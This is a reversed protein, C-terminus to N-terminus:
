VPMHPAGPSVCTLSWGRPITKMDVHYGKRCLKWNTHGATYLHVGYIQVSKIDKLVHSPIMHITLFLYKTRM